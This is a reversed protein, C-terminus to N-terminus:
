SGNVLGAVRDGKKVRGTGSGTEVVVGAYDMGVVCGAYSNDGDLDVHKYDTPYIAVAKVQVIVHNLSSITPRPVDQVEAVGPQVVVISKVSM